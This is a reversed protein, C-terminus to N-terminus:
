VLQQVLKMLEAPSIPKLLFAATGLKEARQMTEKSGDASLIVIPASPCLQKLKPFSDLGNENNMLVDLLILDAQQISLFRVAEESSGFAATQFGSRELLLKISSRLFEEDDIILILKSADM